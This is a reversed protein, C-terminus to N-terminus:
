KEVTLLALAFHRYCQGHIRLLLAPASLFLKIEVDGMSSSRERFPFLDRTQELRRSLIGLEKEIAWIRTFKIAKMYCWIQSLYRLPAMQGTSLM